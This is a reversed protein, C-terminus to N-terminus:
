RRMCKARQKKLRKAAREAKRKKRLAREAEYRAYVTAFRKM